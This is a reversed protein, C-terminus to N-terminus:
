YSLQHSGFLFKQSCFKQYKIIEIKQNKLIIQKLQNNM